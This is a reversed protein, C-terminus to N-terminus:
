KDDKQKQIITKNKKKVESIQGTETRMQSIEVKEPSVEIAQATEPIIDQLIADVTQNVIEETIETKLLSVAKKVTSETFKKTRHKGKPMKFEELTTKKPIEYLEVPEEDDRQVEQKGDKQHRVVKESKNINSLNGTKPNANSMDM